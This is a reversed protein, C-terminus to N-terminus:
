NRKIPVGIELLYMCSTNFSLANVCGRHMKLKSMLELRRPVHLSDYYHQSFLVSQQQHARGGLQRQVIQDVFNWTNKPQPKTKIKNLEKEITEEVAKRKAEAEATDGNNTAPDRDDDDSDTDSQLGGLLGFPRRRCRGPASSEEANAEIENAASASNATTEMAPLPSTADTNDPDLSSTTDLSADDMESASTIVMNGGGLDIPRCTDGPDNTDKEENESSSSSALTRSRYSRRSSSNRRRFSSSAKDEDKEDDNEETKSKKITEDSSSDSGEMTIGSDNKQISERKKSSKSSGLLNSGKDVDEITESAEAM